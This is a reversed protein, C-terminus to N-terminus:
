VHKLIVTLKKEIMFEIGLDDFIALVHDNVGKERGNAVELKLKLAQKHLDSDLKEFDDEPIM